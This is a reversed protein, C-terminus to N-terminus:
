RAAGPAEVLALDTLLRRRHGAGAGFPVHLNPGELGVEDGRALHVEARAAAERVAQEFAAGAAPTLTVTVRRGQLAEREAVMLQEQRLSSRWHIHRAEDGERLERLGHFDEGGGRSVRALGADGRGERAGAVHAETRGPWAVFRGPLPFERTKAFIGFPYATTVRVAGLHVEGRRTPM